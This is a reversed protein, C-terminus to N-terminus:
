SSRCAPGMVRSRTGTQGPTLNQTRHLLPLLPHTCPATCPAPPTAPSRGAPRLPPADQVQALAMWELLSADNGIRATGYSYKRFSEIM